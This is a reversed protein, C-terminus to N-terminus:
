VEKVAQNDALERLARGQASVERLPLSQQAPNDISLHGQKTLWYISKSVRPKPEKTKVEYTAEVTGREDCKFEVTVSLSGKVVGHRAVAEDRLAKMLEHLSRSARSHAQEDDLGAFFHVFSRPSDQQQQPDAM